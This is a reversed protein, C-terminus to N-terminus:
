SVAGILKKNFLNMISKAIVEHTDPMYGGSLLMVIPIKRARAMKFVIEDRKRIGKPTISLLGLPDYQLCDTGANYVIIDPRFQSLAAKLNSSLLTLYEGDQIDIHLKVARTIARRARSDHPYIHSNFMDMIYVRRDGYFDNEHGNGIMAKGILQNLLLFNIALSIDAYVCFGGGSNGSAHHFGGGINIAWGHELALRAALITGGTHYRFPKLLVRRIICPPILAVPAVEVVKAVHCPCNLSSLYLSTHVVRLDSNSAESPMVTQGEEIMGSEVLIDHVRGWKRSDFPHCREIGCFSINYIPHYVIPLQKPELDKYLKSARVLALKEISQM